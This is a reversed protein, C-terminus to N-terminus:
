EALKSQKKKIKLCEQEKWKNGFIKDWKEKFEKRSIRMKRMKDGKGANKVM